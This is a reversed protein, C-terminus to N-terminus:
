KQKIKKNGRIYKKNNNAENRVESKQKDTTKKM